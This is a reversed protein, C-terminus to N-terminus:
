LERHAHWASRQMSSAHIKTMKRSFAKFNGEMKKNADKLGDRLESGLNGITKEMMDRWDEDLVHHGDRTSTCYGKYPGMPTEMLTPKCSAKGCRSCIQTEMIAEMTARSSSTSASSEGDDNVAQVIIKGINRIKRIAGSSSPM